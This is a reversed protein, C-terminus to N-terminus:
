SSWWARISSSRCRLSRWAGILLSAAPGAVPLRGILGLGRRVGVRLAAGLRNAPDNVLPDNEVTFGGPPECASPPPLYGQPVAADPSM